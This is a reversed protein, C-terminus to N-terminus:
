SIQRGTYSFIPLLVDVSYEEFSNDTWRIRISNDEDLYPLLESREYQDKQEMVDYSQTSVNYFEMTGEFVKEYDGMLEEDPWEAYLVEPEYGGFSYRLENVQEYTSAFSTDFSGSLVTTQKEMNPIYVLDESVYDASIDTCIVTIGRVIVSDDKVIERNEEAPFAYVVASGMGLSTYGLDNQLVRERWFAAAAEESEVASSFGDSGATKKFLDTRYVFRSSATERDELRITAGDPLDGVYIWRDATWVSVNVLDMGTQNTLTGEVAEASVIVKGTLSKGGTEESTRTLRFYESTFPVNDHIRLSTGQETRIMELRPSCQSWDAQTFSMPSETLYTLEYGDALEATYLTHYPSQINLYTTESIQKDSLRCVSVYSAFPGTYRTGSGMLYIVFTFLISIGAMSLRLMNQMKKKKLSFYLVPGLIMLYVIFVLVYYLVNPIRDADASPTLIVAEWYESTGYAVRDTLQEWQIAGLCSQFFLEGDAEGALRSNLTGLSFGCYVYMGMGCSERVIDGETVTECFDSDNGVILVGGSQVWQRVASEQADTWQERKIGDLFLIDYYDFQSVLEPIGDATLCALRIDVDPHDEFTVERCWDFHGPDETVAGIYLDWYNYAPNLTINELGYLVGDAGTFTIQVSASYYAIPIRFDVQGTEGALLSIDEGISYYEENELYVYASVTGAVADAATIRVTFPLMDGIRAAGDGNWIVEMQVDNGDEQPRSSAYSVGGRDFFLSLYVFLCLSAMGFLLKWGKRVKCQNM